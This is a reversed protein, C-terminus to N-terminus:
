FASDISDVIKRMDPEPEATPDGGGRLNEKPRAPPADPDVPGFSSLLEDADAELEEQTAGVLRKAQVPTLGKEAGVRLRLAEAEAKDARATAAAAEDTLRQTETKQGEELEALKAAADANAKAKAEHKRALAKWKEAEKAPDKDPEPPDDPAPPDDPPDEPM